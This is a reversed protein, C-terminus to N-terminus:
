NIILVNNLNNKRYPSNIIQKWLSEKSFETESHQNTHIKKNPLPSRYRQGDLGIYNLFVENFFVTILMYFSFLKYYFNFFILMLLALSASFPGSFSIYKRTKENSAKTFTVGIPFFPLPIFFPLISNVDNRKAAFYHGLEHILLIFCVIFVFSNHLITYNLAAVAALTVILILVETTKKTLM